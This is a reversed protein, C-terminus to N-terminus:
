GSEARPLVGISISLADTHAYAVHWFGRPLYLWDGPLLRCSMIPSTEQAHLSFDPQAVWPSAAAVTNRRFLYEKDGETQVIFVDEPDYHWGFGHTHGPTAFVIVRQEGPLERAFDGCLEALRADHREARRIALGLGAAFLRRLAGLCRPAPLGYDRGAGVVLVDDPLAQLMRDLGQWSCNKAAEAAVSPGALPERGLYQARFQALEIRELWTRLPGM